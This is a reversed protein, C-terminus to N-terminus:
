CGASGDACVCAVTAFSGGISSPGQPQYWPPCFDPMEKGATRVRGYKGGEPTAYESRGFGDFRIKWTMPFPVFEDWEPTLYTDVGPRLMRDDNFIRDALHKDDLQAVQEAIWAVRQPAMYNAYGEVTPDIHIKKLRGQSAHGRRTTKTQAIFKIMSTLSLPTFRRPSFVAYKDAISLQLTLFAIATTDNTHEAQAIAKSLNLVVTQGKKVLVPRGDQTGEFQYMDDVLAKRVIPLRVKRQAMSQVMKELAADDDCLAAHQVSIWEPEVAPAIGERANAAKYLDAMYGDLTATFSVVANYAFDLCILLLIAAAKSQDREYRLVQRAVFVGMEHMPNTEEKGFLMRSLGWLQDAEWITGQRTLDILFKMSEQFAQRRAMWKTEDTNYSLFVQCNTIHQYIQNETYTDKVPTETAVERLKNSFGLFAAIYRTVVPIAFDRTADIQFTSNTVSVSERKIIYKMLEDLYKKLEPEAKKVYDELIAHDFSPPQKEADLVSRVVRPLNAKYSYVPNTFNASKEGQLVMHIDKFNELYCPKKPKEPPYAVVDAATKKPKQFWSAGADHLEATEKFDQGYGQAEAYIANQKATYFPHFFRISDNPFWGPFARQLLRHFVSSKCIENNPTVEKMGWSTLSNTNWDTTYFRDSRVLTIADSFIATWLASSSETPGPDLGMRADSECFIGPYLEIKDPSEYLDRLANQIEVNATVSEFSAHRPLEFIQRFDNLTGIEWKRAQLIGMIEVPKMCRPVNRPGFNSIPEDMAASLEGLMQKDDFLGTIPNRVFHTSVSPTAPANIPKQTKTFDQSVPVDMSIGSDSGNRSRETSSVGDSGPSSNTTAQDPIGFTIEWPEPPLIGKAQDEQAKQKSYAMTKLFEPLTTNNPDKLHLVNKMFEEIYKEDRLSIACHFRYLLNFEVTVQNGIGRSTKKQDFDARPDLTLNTDYAHFGMLARLYDHISIQIYMGCTILRATNFLDNDQKDRAAQWAAEFDNCKNVFAEFQAPSKHKLKGKKEELKLELADRLDNLRTNLPLAEFKAIKDLAEQRKEEAAIRAAKQQPTENPQKAPASPPDRPRAAQVKRWAKEYETCLQQVEYSLETKSGDKNRDPLHEKILSVLKTKNYMEPLSFRGNENIRLLQRAAYNHYRSYAVLLICVGPPQRLLRDEAFTDPKLLGLGYKEDRVKRQIEETYGYLPSLDLYSSSDSINKDNDNTRFIDHIIITAHYLLMSSLGSQSQRGGDERAMLKDFLDVPDPLAGLPATTSPVTKAYPAGAQGLHPNIASNFKGDPTRYQFADGLYTLPPHLMKDYKTKVQDNIFKQRNTSYDSLSGAIQAAGEPQTPDLGKGMLLSDVVDGLAPWNKPRLIAKIDGLTGVTPIIRNSILSDGHFQAYRNDNEKNRLQLTLEMLDEEKAASEKAVRGTM